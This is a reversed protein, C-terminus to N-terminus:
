PYALEGVLWCPLVQGLYYSGEACAASETCHQVSDVWPWRQLHCRHRLHLAELHCRQLWLYSHSTLDIRGAPVGHLITIYILAILHISFHIIIFGIHIYFHGNLELLLCNRKIVLESKLTTHFLYNFFMQLTLKSKKYIQVDM